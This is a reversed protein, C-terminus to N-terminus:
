PISRANAKAAKKSMSYANAKAAKKSEDPNFLRPHPSRQSKCGKARM